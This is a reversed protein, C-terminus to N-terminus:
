WCAGDLDVRAGVSFINGGDADRLQLGGGEAPTRVLSEEGGKLRLSVHLHFFHKHKCCTIPLKHTHTLDQEM